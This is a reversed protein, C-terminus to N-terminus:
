RVPHLALEGLVSAERTTDTDNKTPAIAQVRVVSMSGKKHLRVDRTTSSTNEEGLVSRHGRSATRGQTIGAIWFM